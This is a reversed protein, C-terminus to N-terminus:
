QKRTKDHFAKANKTRRKRATQIRRKSAILTRRWVSKAIPTAMAIMEEASL